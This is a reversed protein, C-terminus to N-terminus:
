VQTIQFDSYLPLKERSLIKEFHHESENTRLTEEATKKVLDGGQLYVIIGIFKVKERLKLM